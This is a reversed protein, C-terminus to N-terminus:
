KRLVFRDLKMQGDRYINKVQQVAEEDQFKIMMMLGTVLNKLKLREQIKETGYGMTNISTEFEKLGDWLKMIWLNGKINEGDSLKIKIEKKHNEDCLYNWLGHLALKMLKMMEGMEEEALETQKFIKRLKYTPQYTQESKISLDTYKPHGDIVLNYLERASPGVTFGRSRKVIYGISQRVMELDTEEVLDIMVMASWKRFELENPMRKVLEMRAKWNKLGRGIEIIQEILLTATSNSLPLSLLRLSIKSLDQTLESTHPDITLRFIIPLIWSQALETSLCGSSLLIEVVQLVSRLAHLTEKLPIGIKLDGVDEDIEDDSVKLYQPKIGLSLFSFRLMSQWEQDMKVKFIECGKGFNILCKYSLEVPCSPNSILRFFIELILRQAPSDASPQMLSSPLFNLLDVPVSDPHTWGFNLYDIIEELVAKEEKIIMDVDCDAEHLRSLEDQLSLNLQTTLFQSESSDSSFRNDIFISRSNQEEKFKKVRQSKDVDKLVSEKLKRVRESQVSKREGSGSPGQGDEVIMPLLGIKEVDEKSIDELEELQDLEMLSSEHQHDQTPSEFINENMKTFREPLEEPIELRDCGLRLYEEHSRKHSHIRKEAAKVSKIMSELSHISPRPVSLAAHIQPNYIPRSPALRSSKKLPMSSPVGTVSPKKKTRRPSDQLNQEVRSLFLLDPDELEDDDSLSSTPPLAATAQIAPALSLPTTPSTPSSLGSQSTQPGSPPLTGPFFTKSGAIELPEDLDTLPSSPIVDAHSTVEPTQSPKLPTQLTLPSKKTPKESQDADKAKPTLRSVRKKAPSVSNADMESLRASSRSNKKTPTNTEELPKTSSSRTVRRESNLIKSTSEESQHTSTASKNPPLSSNSKKKSQPTKTPPPPHSQARTQNTSLSPPNKIAIDQQQRSRLRTAPSGDLDTTSAITTNSTSKIPKLLESPEKQNTLTVSHKTFYDKITKSNTTTTSQNKKKPPM